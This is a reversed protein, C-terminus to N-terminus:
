GTFLLMQEVGQTQGNVPLAAVGRHARELHKAVQRVICGALHEVAPALLRAGPEHARLNAARIDVCLNLWGLFIRVGDKSLQCLCMQCSVFFRKVATLSVNSLQPPYLKDLCRYWLSLLKTGRFDSSQVM